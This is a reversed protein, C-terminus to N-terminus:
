KKKKELRQRNDVHQRMLEEKTKPPLSSIINTLDNKVWTESYEQLTKFDQRLIRRALGEGADMAEEEIELMAQKAKAPDIGLHEVAGVTWKDYIPEIIKEWVSVPDRADFSWSKGIYLQSVLNLPVRGAWFTIKHEPTPRGNFDFIAETYFILDFIYPVNKEGELSVVPKVKVKPDEVGPATEEKYYEIDKLRTSWGVHMKSRALARLGKKWPRKIPRWHKAVIDQGEKLNEDQWDNMWGTWLESGDDIVVSAFDSEHKLAFAMGKRYIELNPAEFIVDEPGLFPQIGGNGCDIVVKPSPYWALIRSKGSKWKGFWGAKIGGRHIGAPTEFPRLDAPIQCHLCKNLPPVLPANCKPCQSVAAAQAM